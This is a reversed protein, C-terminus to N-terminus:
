IGFAALKTDKRVTATSLSPKLPFLLCFARLHGDEEEAYEQYRAVSPRACFVTTKEACKTAQGLPGLIIWDGGM